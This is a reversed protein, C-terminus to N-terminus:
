HKSKRNMHRNTGVESTVIYYASVRPSLVAPAPSSYAYRGSVSLLAATSEATGGCVISFGSKPNETPRPDHVNRAPAQFTIASRTWSFSGPCFLPIRVMKDRTFRLSIKRCLTDNLNPYVTCRDNMDFTELHAIRAGRHELSHM